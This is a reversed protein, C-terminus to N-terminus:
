SLREVMTGGTAAPMVISHRRGATPQESSLRCFYPIEVRRRFRDGRTGAEMQDPVPVPEVARGGCYEVATGLVDFDVVYEAIFPQAETGYVRAKLPARRRFHRSRDRGRYHGCRWEAASTSRRMATTWTSMSAGDMDMAQELDRIDMTNVAAIAARLLLLQEDSMMAPLGTVLVNPEFEANPNPTTADDIDGPVAFDAAAVPGSPDAM